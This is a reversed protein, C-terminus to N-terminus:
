MLRANKLIRYFWPLLRDADQLDGSKHLAKLPSDQFIDEALDPDGVKSKVYAVLKGRRACCNNKSCVQDIRRPRQKPLGFPALTTTELM